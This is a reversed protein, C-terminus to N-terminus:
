QNRLGDFVGDTNDGGGFGVDVDRVGALLQFADLKHHLGDLGLGFDFSKGWGADQYLGSGGVRISVEGAWVYLRLQKQKLARLETPILAVKVRYLDDTRDRDRGYAESWNKELVKRRMTLEGIEGGNTRIEPWNEPWCNQRM